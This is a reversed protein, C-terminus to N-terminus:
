PGDVDLEIAVYRFGLARISPALRAVAPRLGPDVRIAVVESGSGAVSVEAELGAGRLLAGVQALADV